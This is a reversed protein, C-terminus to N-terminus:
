IILCLQEAVKKGKGTLTIIKRSMHDPDESVLIWNAGAKETRKSGSLTLYRINRSGTSQPLDLDQIVESMLLKEEGREALMQLIRIFVRITQLELVADTESFINIAAMLKKYTLIDSLDSPASNRIM